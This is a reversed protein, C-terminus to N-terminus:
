KTGFFGKKPDERILLTQRKEFRANILDRVVENYIEM